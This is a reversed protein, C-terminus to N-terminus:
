KGIARITNVMKKNKCQKGGDKNAAEHRAEDKSEIGRFNRAKEMIQDKLVTSRYTPKIRLTNLIKKLGDLFLQM